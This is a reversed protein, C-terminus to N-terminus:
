AHMKDMVRARHVKITKESIGLESAAQKNLRGAVVLTMVDRERPTLTGYCQKLHNRELRDSSLSRDHQVARRLADILVNPSVPKELFDQAGHKIGVTAAPVTGHGSLFVVPVHRTNQQLANQVDLGSLGDMCLDLLVCTPGQLLEFTLFDAPSAFTQASFGAARVLRSIARRVSADDDVILVTADTASDTSIM